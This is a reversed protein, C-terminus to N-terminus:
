IAPTEDGKVQSLTYTLVGHVKVDDLYDGEIAEGEETILAQGYLKVFQNRGDVTALLTDGNGPILAVNIVAWGCSTEIVRCNGDMGCLSDITLREEVYDQAPSVFGM